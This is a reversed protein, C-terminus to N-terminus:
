ETGRREDSRVRLERELEGAIIRAAEKLEERGSYFYVSIGLSEEGAIEERTLSLEANVLLILRRHKMLRVKRIKRELYDERWFGVIEILVETTSRASRAVFDPVMLVKKGADELPILAGEYTLDWDPAHKVFSKRFSEEDGSRLPETSLGSEGIFWSRFTVDFLLCDPRDQGRGSAPLLHVDLRWRTGSNRVALITFQYLRNWYMTTRTFLSHPGLVDVVIENGSERVDIMLGLRKAGWLLSVYSTMADGREPLHLIIRVARRLVMRLRERNVTRLIEPVDSVAGEGSFTVRREGPTDAYMLLEVQEPNIGLRTGVSHLISSRDPSFLSADTSGPVHGQSWAASFLELRLEEPDINGPLNTMRSSALTRLLEVRLRRDEERRDSMIMEAIATEADDLREGEFARLDAMMDRITEVTGNDEPNLFGNM